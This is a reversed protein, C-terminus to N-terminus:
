APSRRRTVYSTRSTNRYGTFEFLEDQTYRFYRDPTAFGRDADSWDALLKRHNSVWEFRTVTASEDLLMSISPLPPWGDSHASLLTVDDDFVMFQIGYSECLRLRELHSVHDDFFAVTRKGAISLKEQTIDDEFYVAKTSVFQLQRLNIDFCYLQTESSSASDLLYTTFGRWCGSEIIVEPNVIRVFVYLFLGNNFGFGGDLNPHRWARVVKEYDAILNGLDQDPIEFSFRQLFGQLVSILAVNRRAILAPDIPYSRFPVDEVSSPRVIRVGLLKEAFKRLRRVSNMAIDRIGANGPKADATDRWYPNETIYRTPNGTQKAAIAIADAPSRHKPVM